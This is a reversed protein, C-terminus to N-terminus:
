RYSKLGLPARCQVSQRVRRSISLTAAAVAILSVSSPEPVSQVTFSQLTDMSEPATPRTTLTIEVPNSEGVNFGQELADAYGTAGVNYWVRVELTLVTLNPLPLAVVGGDFFGAGVFGNAITGGTPGTTGYFATDAGAFLVPNGSDFSAQSYGSGPLYFLSATYDSGVFDGPAGQGVAGNLGITVPAPGTTVPDNNFLFEGQAFVPQVASFTLAILIQLKIPSLTTM